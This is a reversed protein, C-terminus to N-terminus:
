NVDDCLDNPLKRLTGPVNNMARMSLDEHALVSYSADERAVHIEVAKRERLHDVGDL